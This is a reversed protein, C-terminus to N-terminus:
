LCPRGESIASSFRNSGSLPTGSATISAVAMVSMRVPATVASPARCRARLPLLIRPWTPARPVEYQFTRNSSEIKSKSSIRTCERRGSLRSAKAVRSVRSRPLGTITVSSQSDQTRPASMM